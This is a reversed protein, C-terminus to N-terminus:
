SRHRGDATADLSRARRRGAVTGTEPDVLMLEEEIGVKRVAMHSM